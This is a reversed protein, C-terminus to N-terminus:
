EGEGLKTVCGCEPCRTSATSGRLDYGCTVCQGVDLIVDAAGFKLSITVGLFVAIAVCVTLIADKLVVAAFIIACETVVLLILMARVVDKRRLCVVGLPSIVAGILAGHMAGMMAGIPGLRLSAAATCGFLAGLGVFGIVIRLKPLM